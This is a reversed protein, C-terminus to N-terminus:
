TNVEKLNDKIKTIAQQRLVEDGRNLKELLLEKKKLYKEAKHKKEFQLVWGINYILDCYKVTQAAASITLLREGEKQKRIKKSLLPYNKRSYVDTLDQVVTVIQRADKSGYGFETLATLLEGTTTDTDEFIDHCLGIEFGLPTAKSAMDAVAKLHLYYPEGSEKIKHSSFKQKIWDELLTVPSEINFDM